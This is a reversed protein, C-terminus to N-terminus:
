KVEKNNKKDTVVSVCNDVAADNLRARWYRDLPVGNEDAETTIIMGEAHGRLPVNLKLNIKM